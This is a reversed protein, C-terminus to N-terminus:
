PATEKEAAGILCIPRCHLISRDESESRVEDHQVQKLMWPGASDRWSPALKIKACLWSAVFIDRRGRLPKGRGDHPRGCRRCPFPGAPGLRSRRPKTAKHSVFSRPACPCPPGLARLCPWPHRPNIPHPNTLNGAGVRSADGRAQDPTWSKLAATSGPDLGPHRHLLPQARRAGRDGAGAPPVRRPPRDATAASAASPAAVSRCISPPIAWLM